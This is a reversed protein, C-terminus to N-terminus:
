EVRRLVADYVDRGLRAALENVLERVTERSYGREAAAFLARDSYGLQLTRWDGRYEGRRVRATSRAAVTGQDAVRGYGSADVVRYTARAWTEVRGERVGYATDAGAQTRATRRQTTVDTEGRRVSDIEMVVVLRAGLQRGIRAGTAADIPQRAAGHRRAERGAAVPDVVDLWLPSRSWHNLSLEDNLEAFLDDPLSDRVAAPGGVPLIAVRVTGRRLAERQLAAADGTEYRGLAAAQAAREYAARYRGSQMEGQAWGYLADHRARELRERDAPTPEWRQVARELWGVAGSYDRRALASGSASLALSVAQDFTARRRQEYGAPPQLAVGVASADGRLEDLRRLVDAAEVYSGTGELRGAEALYEAIARGGTEALRTRADSLTRDKKLADIYRQAADAPRGRQELELGQEYRKGASACGAALAVAALLLAARRIPRLHTSTRRM